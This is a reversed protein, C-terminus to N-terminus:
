WKWLGERELFNKGEQSLAFILVRNGAENHTDGVIEVLHAAVLEARRSRPGSESHHGHAANVHAALEGDTMRGWEAYALLVELRARSVNKRAALAAEFSTAPDGTRSIPDPLDFLRPTDTM